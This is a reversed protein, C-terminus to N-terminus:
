VSSYYVSHSVIGSVTIEGNTSLPLLDTLICGELATALELCTCSAVGEEQLWWDETYTGMILWQYKRGFMGSRHAECFIRRAWSENFNGLIIRVDKEKLKDMATRVENAFSQTEAVQFGMTDLDAVLHNHAQSCVLTRYYKSPQAM